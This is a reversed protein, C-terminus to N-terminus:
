RYVRNIRNVRTRRRKGGKRTITFNRDRLQLGLNDEMVM